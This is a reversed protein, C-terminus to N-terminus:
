EGEDGEDGEDSGSMFLEIAREYGEPSSVLIRAADVPGLRPRPVRPLAAPRALIEVSPPRGGEKLPLTTPPSSRPVGARLGPVASSQVPPAQTLDDRIGAALLRVLVGLCLIVVSSALIAGRM